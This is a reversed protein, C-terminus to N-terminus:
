AMAEEFTQNIAGDGVSFGLLERADIGDYLTATHEGRLDRVTIKVGGTVRQADAEPSVAAIVRDAVIELKLADSQADFSGSGPDMVNPRIYGGVSVYKRMSIIATGSGDVAKFQVDAIGASLRNSEEQTLMVAVTSGTEDAAVRLRETGYELLANGRQILLEMNAGTLDVGPATIVLVPTGSQMIRSLGLKKTEAGNLQFSVTASDKGIKM